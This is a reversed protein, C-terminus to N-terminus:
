PNGAALFDRRAVLRESRPLLFSRWGLFLNGGGLLPQSGVHLLVNRVDLLVREVLLHGAMEVQVRALFGM